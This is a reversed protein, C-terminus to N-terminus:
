HVLTASKESTKGMKYRGLSLADGGGTVKSDASLSVSFFFLSLQRGVAGYYYTVSKLGGATRSCCKLASQCLFGVCVSVCVSSSM